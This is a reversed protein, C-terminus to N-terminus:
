ETEGTAAIMTDSLLTYCSQWADHLEDNWDKGLTQSLTWLLANGVYQYHVPKVGYAVHRIALQRVDATVEDLRDLRTVVAHLMDLLKAYQQTLPTKFMHKVAPMELFLRSYFVDGVLQPNIERVLKWSNKVLQIQRPTM